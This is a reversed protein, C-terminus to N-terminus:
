ATTNIHNGLLGGPSMPTAPEEPLAEPKAANDQAPAPATRERPPPPFTTPHLNNTVTM